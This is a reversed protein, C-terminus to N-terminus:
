GCVHHLACIGYLGLPFYARKGVPAVRGLGTNAALDTALFRWSDEAIILWRLTRAVAILGVFGVPIKRPHFHEHLEGVGEIEIARMLGEAMWEAM